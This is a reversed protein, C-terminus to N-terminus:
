PQSCHPPLNKYLISFKLPPFITNVKGDHNLVGKVYGEWVNGGTRTRRTNFFGVNSVPITVVPVHLSYGCSQFNSLVLVPPLTQSPYKLPTCFRSFHSIYASQICSFGYPHLDYTVSVSVMLPVFMANIIHTNLHCIVVAYKTDNMFCTLVVEM